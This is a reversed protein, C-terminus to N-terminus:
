CFKNWNTVKKANNGLQEFFVGILM